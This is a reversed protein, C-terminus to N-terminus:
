YFESLDRCEPTEGTMSYLEGSSLYVCHSTKGDRWESQKTIGCIACRQIGPGAKGDRWESQKTIGCIACRQIGPGAKVWSHRVNKKRTRNTDDLKRM